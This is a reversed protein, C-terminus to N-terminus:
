ADNMNWPTANQMAQVAALADYEALKLALQRCPLSTRLSASRIAKEDRPCVNRHYQQQQQQQQQQEYQTLLVLGRHTKCLVNKLDNCIYGELGRASPSKAIMNQYEVIEMETMETSCFALGAIADLYEPCHKKYHTIIPLCEAHIRMSDSKRWWCSGCSESDSDHSADATMTMTTEVLHITCQVMSSGNDSDNANNTAFRVSKKKKNNNKTSSNSSTKVELLHNMSSATSKWSCHGKDNFTTSADLFAAMSDCDTEEGEERKVMVVDNDDNVDDDHLFGSSGEQSSSSSSSNAFSCEMANPPEGHHHLNGSSGKLKSKQSGGCQQKSPFLKVCDELHLSDDDEDHDSIPEANESTPQM